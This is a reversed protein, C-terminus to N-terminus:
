SSYHWGSEVRGAALDASHFIVYDTVVKGEPQSKKQSPIPRPMEAAVSANTTPTATPIEGAVSAQSSLVVANESKIWLSGALTIAALGLCSYLVAVGLKPLWLARAEAATKIQNRNQIDAIASNLLSFDHTLTSM